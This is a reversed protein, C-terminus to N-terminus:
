GAPKPPAQDHDQEVIPIRLARCLTRLEGLSKIGGEISVLDVNRMTGNAINWGGTRRRVISMRRKTEPNATGHLFLDGFEDVAGLSKFVAEDVPTEDLERRFYDPTNTSM